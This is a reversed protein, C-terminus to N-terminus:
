DINPILSLFRPIGKREKDYEIWHINQLLEIMDPRSEVGCLVKFCYCEDKLWDFINRLKRIFGSTDANGYPLFHLNEIVLVVTTSGLKRGLTLEVPKSINSNLRDLIYSLCESIGMDTKPLTAESIGVTLINQLFENELEKRHVHNAPQLGRIIQCAVSLVFSQLVSDPSEKECSFFVDFSQTKLDKKHGSKDGKLSLYCSGLQQDLKPPTSVGISSHSKSLVWEQFDPDMMLWIHDPNDKKISHFKWSKLPDVLKPLENFLKSADNQNIASRYTDEQDWELSEM